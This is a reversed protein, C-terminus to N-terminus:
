VRGRLSANIMMQKEVNASLRGEAVGETDLIRYRMVQRGGLRDTRAEAQHQDTLSVPVEIWVETNCVDQLGDTGTGVAAVNAVLIQYKSGFDELDDKHEGTYQGVTFGAKELRHVIVPAFRTFELYVMVPEDEDIENTLIDLLEDVFPSRCDVDYRISTKTVMEGRKKDYKEFEYAEGEGLCLQRIRQKQTLPIEAVLPNDKLFSVMMKEMDRIARKQLITLEVERDIVVPKDTPLFGNPHADCCRERRKHQVVCPMQSLLLGPEKEHKYQKVKVRTGDEKQRSTTVMTWDMRDNAWMVMNDYAVQGRKYLDSFLFRMTAWMNLFNQRMPTGSLALRMDFRNSIPYDRHLDYGSLKRQGNTKPTALKHSEDVILMDGSWTSTDTTSRSFLQTTVAYVGPYGWEFDDRAEREAKKGNGIRRVERGSIERVAKPWGKKPNNITSDPAIILVVEPNAEQIALCALATKGGGTEIAVLGTYNHERLTALDKLQWDWPTFVM